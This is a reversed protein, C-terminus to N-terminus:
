TRTRRPRGRLRRPENLSQGLSANKQRAAGEHALRAANELALIEARLTSKRAALQAGLRFISLRAPNRYVDRRKKPDGYVFEAIPKAGILLDNALPSTPDQVPTDM